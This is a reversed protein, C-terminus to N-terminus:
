CKSNALVLSLYLQLDLDLDLRSIIEPKSNNGLKSFVYNKM